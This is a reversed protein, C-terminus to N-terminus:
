ACVLCDKGKPCDDCYWTECAGGGGGCFVVTAGTVKKDCSHCSANPHKTDFEEEHNDNVSYEASEELDEAWKYTLSKWNDEAWKKQAGKLNKYADEIADYMSLKEEIEKLRKECKLLHEYHAKEITMADSGYHTPNM